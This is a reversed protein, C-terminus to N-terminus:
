NQLCHHPLHHRLPGSARLHQPDHVRRVRVGSRVLHQDGRLRHPDVEGVHPVPQADLALRGIPGTDLHRARHHGDSRVDGGRGDAVPDGRRGVAGRRRVGLEDSGRRVQAERQGVVHRGGGAGRQREVVESRVRGDLVRGPRARTLADQDVRTGAPDAEGRHLEGSPV